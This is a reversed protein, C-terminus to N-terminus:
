LLTQLHCYKKNCYYKYFLIHHIDGIKVHKNIMNQWCHDEQESYHLYRCHWTHSPGGHSQRVHADNTYRPNYSYWTERLNTSGDRLDQQNVASSFARNM